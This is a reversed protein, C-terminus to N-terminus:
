LISERGLRSPKPVVNGPHHYYKTNMSLLDAEQLRTKKYRSSKKNRYTAKPEGIKPEIRTTRNIEFNNTCYVEPKM